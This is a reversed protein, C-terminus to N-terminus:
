GSLMRCVLGRWAHFRLPEPNGCGHEHPKSCPHGKGSCASAGSGCAPLLGLQTVHPSGHGTGLRLRSSIYLACAAELSSSQNQFPISPQAHKFREGLVANQRGAPLTEAATNAEPLSGKDSHMHTQLLSCALVLFPSKHQKARSGAQMRGREILGPTGQPPAAMM